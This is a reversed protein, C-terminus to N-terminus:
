SRLTKEIDKKIRKSKPAKPNEDGYIVLNMTQKKRQIAALDKALMDIQEQEPEWFEYKSGGEEHDDDDGEDDEEEIKPEVKEAMKQKKPAM